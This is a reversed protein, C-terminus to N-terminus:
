RKLNRLPYIFNVARISRRHTQRPFYNRDIIISFLERQSIDSPFSVLTSNIYPLFVFCECRDKVFNEMKRREVLPNNPHTSKNWTSEKQVLKDQKAFARVEAKRKRKEESIDDHHFVTQSPSYNIMGSASGGIQIKKKLFNGESATHQAM